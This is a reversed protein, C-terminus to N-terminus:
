LPEANGRFAAAEAGPRTCRENPRQDRTEVCDAGWHQTERDGLLNLNPGSLFLNKPM